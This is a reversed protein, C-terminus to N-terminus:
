DECRVIRRSQNSVAVAIEYATTSSPALKCGLEEIQPISRRPYRGGARAADGIVRMTIPTARRRHGTMLPVRRSCTARTGLSEGRIPRRSRGKAATSHNKLSLSCRSPSPMTQISITLDPLWGKYLSGRAAAASYPVAESADDSPSGFM